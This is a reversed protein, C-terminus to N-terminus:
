APAPLSVRLGGDMTLWQSWAGGPTEEWRHSVVGAATVGFVEVRGDANTEAAVNTRGSAFATWGSMGGAPTTQSAHYVTHARSSGFVELRGDFSRAVAVNSLAGSIRAWVGWTGGALNQRRHFIAGAATVGFVEGRGDANTEAALTTTALGGFTDWVSWPGGFSLQARTFVTRSSDSGFLQLKGDYSRALALSALKGDMPQWATWASGATVQSRHFITGDAATAFAELRGDANAEAAISTFTGGFPAWGTWAGGAGIQWAHMSAGTAEVAFVELRGDANRALAIPSDSLRGIALGFDIFRTFGRSAPLGTWTRGTGTGNANYEDVTIRGDALVGTVFAVHGAAGPKVAVGDRVPTTRVAVGHAPASAAWNGAAGLGRTHNTTVGLHELRWAVYDAANRYPYGRVSILEGPLQKRGDRNEDVWWEFYPAQPRHPVANANPYDLTAGAARSAVGTLGVGAALTTALLISLSRM